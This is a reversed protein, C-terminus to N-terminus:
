LSRHGVVADGVAGFGVSVAVRVVVARHDRGAVGTGVGEHRDGHAHGGEGNVGGVAVDGVERRDSSEGGCLVTISAAADFM